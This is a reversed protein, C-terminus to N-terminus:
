CKRDENHHECRCSAVEHAGILAVAIGILILLVHWGTM